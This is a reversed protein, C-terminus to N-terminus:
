FTVIDRKVYMYILDRYEWLERLNLEFLSSTPKIHKDFSM